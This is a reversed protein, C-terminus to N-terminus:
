LGLEFGEGARLRAIRRAAKPVTETLRAGFGPAAGPQRYFVHTGIQATRPYVQSWNPRVRVTHFHTAGDTLRTTNGALVLQAVKGAREWALPETVVEPRGDCAYSFQCGGRRSQGDQVVGCVTDPYRPSSVRNLIVEAVAFQGRLTEGRAEFYLAEALCHWQPGGRAPPLGALWEPDDVPLSARRVPRPSQGPAFAGPDRAVAPVTADLAAHEEAMLRRLDAAFGSKPDNSLSVTVEALAPGSIACLVSLSRVLMASRRM